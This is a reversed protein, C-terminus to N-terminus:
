GLQRALLREITQRASNVNPVTWNFRELIYAWAEVAYDIAGAQWDALTRSREYTIVDIAAVYSDFLPMAGPGVNVAQRGAAGRVCIGVTIVEDPPLGVGALTCICKLAEIAYAALEKV